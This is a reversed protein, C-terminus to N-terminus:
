GGFVIAMAIAKGTTAFQANAQAITYTNAILFSGYAVVDVNDGAAAGTTLVVDTGSTVTVDTGNVLKVGNLYVDAFGADYGGTVAFTTQGATATFTQRAATGNVTSGASKWISGDYVRMENLVTDFYLDGAQL